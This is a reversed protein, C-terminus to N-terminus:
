KAWTSFSFWSNPFDNWISEGGSQLFSTLTQALLSATFAQTVPSIFFSSFSSVFSLSFSFLCIFVQDIPYNDCKFPLSSNGSSALVPHTSGVIGFYM